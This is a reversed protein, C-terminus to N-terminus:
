KSRIKKLESLVYNVYENNENRDETALIAAYYMVGLYIDANTDTIQKARSSFQKSERIPYRVLLHKVKVDDTDLDEGWVHSGSVAAMAVRFMLTKDLDKVPVRELMQLLCLALAYLRDKGNFYKRNQLGSLDIFRAGGETFGISALTCHMHIRGSEVLRVCLDIIDQQEEKTM